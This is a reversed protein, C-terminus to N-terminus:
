RGLVYTGTQIDVTDGDAINVNNVAGEPTTHTCGSPCVTYTTQAWVGQPMAVLLAVTLLSSISIINASCGCFLGSVVRRFNSGM